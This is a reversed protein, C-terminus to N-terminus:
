LNCTAYEQCTEMASGNTATACIHTKCQDTSNCVSGTPLPKECTGTETGDLETTCFLGIACRGSTCAENEQAPAVCKDAECRNPSLCDKAEACSDGANKPLEKCTGLAEVPPPACYLTFDGCRGDCDDGVESATQCTGTGLSDGVCVFPPKCQQDGTCAADAGLQDTCVSDACYLGDDCVFDNSCGTGKDGSICVQQGGVSSCHAGPVCSGASGGCSGNIPVPDICSGTCCQLQCNAGTPEDCRSGDIACEDDEFCPMGSGIKGVFMANCAQLDLNCIGASLNADIGVLCGHAAESDFDMRDAAISDKIRQINVGLEGSEILQTRCEDITSFAHLCDVFLGCQLPIFCEIFQDIDLDTSLCEDPLGGDIGGDIRGGDDDPGGDGPSAPIKGCALAGACLVLCLWYMRTM